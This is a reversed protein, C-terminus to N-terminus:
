VRRSQCDTEVAWDKNLLRNKLTQVSIPSRYIKEDTVIISQKHDSTIDIIKLLRDAELLFSKNDENDTDPSIIAIIESVPILFDAGIHLFLKSM